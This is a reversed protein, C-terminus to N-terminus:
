ALGDDIWRTSRRKAARLPRSSALREQVLMSVGLRACVDTFDGADVTLLAGICLAPDQIMARIVRDTLSLARGGGVSLPGAIAAAADNICAGRYPLDTLLVIDGHRRAYQWARLAAEYHRGGKRMTKTGISEYLTPWPVLLRGRRGAIYEEALDAVIQARPTSEGSALEILFGTDLCVARM